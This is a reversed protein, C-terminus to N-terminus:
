LKASSSLANPFVDDIARVVVCANVNRPLVNSYAPLTRVTLERIYSNVTCSPSVFTGHLSNLVFGCNVNM